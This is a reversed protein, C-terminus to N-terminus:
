KIIMVKGDKSGLGESEVQFMYVGPAIDERNKNKLDWSCQDTVEGTTQPHHLTVVHSAATTYIRITATEPLGIFVVKRQGGHEWDAAARYPNPICRVSALDNNAGVRPYIVETLNEERCEYNVAQPDSASFATVSFQYPFANSFIAASDRRVGRVWAACSDEGDSDLVVLTCVWAEAHWNPFHWYTVAQADEPQDKDRDYQRLLTFQDGKWLERMWLRYGGFDALTDPNEHAADDMAWGIVAFKDGVRSFVVEPCPVAGACSAWVVALLVAVIPAVAWPNRLKRRLRM